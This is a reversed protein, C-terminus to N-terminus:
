LKIKRLVKELLGIFYKKLFVYVKIYVSCGNLYSEVIKRKVRIHEEVPRKSLGGKKQRYAIGHKYTPYFEAKQSLRFLLDLDEYFNEEFSYAGVSCLLKKSVCYDRPVNRFKILAALDTLINGKVFHFKYLKPSDIVCDEENVLVYPSYVIVDKGNESFKQILEIENKLKDKSFYFDDGDTFTVYPTKAQELGKNRANSVGKNEELYIAKVIDFKREYEKIIDRSSDTSCDDVVIIEAPKYSQELMSEICKAIYRENNYNPIIVTVSCDKM